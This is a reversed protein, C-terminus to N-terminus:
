IEYFLIGELCVVAQNPHPSGYRHENFFIQRGDWESTLCGKPSTSWSGSIEFTMGLFYAAKKCEIATTIPRSGSPCLTSDRDGKM